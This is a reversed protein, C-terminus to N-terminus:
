DVVEGFGEKLASEQSLNTTLVRPWEQRLEFARWVDCGAAGRRSRHLAAPTGAFRSVLVGDRESSSARMARPHWGDAHVFFCFCLGGVPWVHVCGRASVASRCSLRGLM